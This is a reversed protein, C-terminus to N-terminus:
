RVSPVNSLLKRHSELSIRASRHPMVRTRRPGRPGAWKHTAFEVMFEQGGTRNTKGPSSPRDARTFPAKGRSVPFPLEEARSLDRTIERRGIQSEAEPNREEVPGIETCAM